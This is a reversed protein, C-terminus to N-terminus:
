ARQNELSARIASLFNTYLSATFEQVPRDTMVDARIIQARMGILRSADALSGDHRCQKAYAGLGLYRAALELSIDRYERAISPVPSNM